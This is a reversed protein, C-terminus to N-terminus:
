QAGRYRDPPLEASAVEFQNQTVPGTAFHHHARLQEYSTDGAAQELDAPTRWLSILLTRSGMQEELLLFGQFGPHQRIAPIGRAEHHQLREALSDPPAAFSTVRAATARQALTAGEGPEWIAVTAYVIAIDGTAFQQYGLLARFMEDEDAARVAAESDWLSLAFTTNAARDVLVLLGQFGPRQRIAPLSVEQHYRLLDEM